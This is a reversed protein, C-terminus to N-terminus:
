QSHDAQARRRAASRRLLEQGIEEDSLHGTDDYQQAGSDKKIGWDSARRRELWRLASTGSPPYRRTYPAYLPKEWAAFMFIKDAQHSPGIAAGHLGGAAQADGMMRGYRVARAFEPETRRWEDLTEVTVELARALAEDTTEGLLGLTRAEEAYEPKYPAPTPLPEDTQM